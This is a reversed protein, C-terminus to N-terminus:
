EPPARGTSNSFSGAARAAILLFSGVTLAGYASARLKRRIADREEPNVPAQNNAM